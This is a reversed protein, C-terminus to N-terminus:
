VGELGAYAQRAVAIARAVSDAHPETATAVMEIALVRDPLYAMVASAIRAHDTPFDGLPVLDPESLHVHGVLHGHAELVGQVDEGALTLAGTDFQLRIAPHDVARVVEATELTTTMFNAGYRVPNPELCLVIGHSWAADGVRRFFAIATELVQEDPWGQRDRNRPAGFVLHRAGLGDGIRFVGELHAAMRDQVEAGAFLNLGITGFLLAQMGTIEIGRDNWARKVRLIDGDLAELPDPFYKGPAVDIADLGHELLVSAMAADESRDWAINSVAIRM